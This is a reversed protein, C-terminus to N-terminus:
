CESTEGTYWFLNLHKIAVIKLLSSLFVSSCILIVGGPKYLQKKNPQLIKKREKFNIPEFYFANDFILKAAYNGFFKTNVTEKEIM